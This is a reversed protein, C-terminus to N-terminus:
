AVLCLACSSMLHIRRCCGYHSRFIDIQVRLRSRASKSFSAGESIQVTVALYELPDTKRYIVVKVSEAAEAVKNDIKKRM